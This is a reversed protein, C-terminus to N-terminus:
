KNKKNTKKQRIKKDNGYIFTVRQKQDLEVKSDKNSLIVCNTNLRIIFTPVKAM